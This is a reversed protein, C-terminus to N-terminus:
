PTLGVRHGIEAPRARPSRGPMTRAGTPLRQAAGRASGCSVLHLPSEHSCSPSPSSATLRSSTRFPRARPWGSPRRGIAARPFDAAMPIARALPLGVHHHLNAFARRWTSMRGPSRARPTSSAGNRVRIQQGYLTFSEPGGVTAMADSVLFSRDPRPRAAIAIRLMDWSVHIGDANLGCWAGSNIVVGVVGPARSTMPPMANFLHTFCAVGGQSAARTQVADAATHGASVVAGTAAAGDSRRAGPRPHGDGPGRRRSAAARHPAHPPRATPHPAFRPRRAARARHAAWSTSGSSGTLATRRSRPKPPRRWSEPADTIITPLIGGTGLRRHAAAVSRMADAAPMANLQVEGGGNVQLDTGAPMLVQPAADPTDRGLQRISRAPRTRRTRAFTSRGLAVDVRDADTVFTDFRVEALSTEVLRGALSLADPHIRGETLMVTHQGHRLATEGVILGTTMITLTAASSLAGAFFEAASGNDILLMADGDVLGVAREGIRRKAALDVQKTARSRSSSAKGARSDPSRFRLTPASSQCARM